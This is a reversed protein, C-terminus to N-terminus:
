VWYGVEAMSLASKLERVRHKELSKSLDHIADSSDLIAQLIFHRIRDHLHGLSSFFSFSTFCAIKWTWSFSSKVCHQMRLNCVKSTQINFLQFLLDKLVFDDVMTPHKSPKQWGWFACLCLPGGWCARCAPMFTQISVPSLVAVQCVRTGLFIKILSSPWPITKNHYVM